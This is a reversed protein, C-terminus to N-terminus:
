LHAAPIKQEDIRNLLQISRETTVPADVATGTASFLFVFSKAIQLPSFICASMSVKEQKGRNELEVARRKEAEQVTRRTDERDHVSGLFM